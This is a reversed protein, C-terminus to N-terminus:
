GLRYFPSEDCIDDLINAMKLNPTRLANSANNTRIASGARPASGM